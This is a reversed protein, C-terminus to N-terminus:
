QIDVGQGTRVCWVWHLAAKSTNAVVGTNFTLDWAVTSDSSWTNASWYASTAPPFSGPAVMVNEFPHGPPLTPGPSPVSPDVLSALEQITPLRWGKRNGVDKLNCLAQAQGWDSQFTHEPSREWVLGTEKDLVATGGFDGLVKFRQPTNIQKDWPDSWVSAPAGVILVVLVALSMVLAFPRTM